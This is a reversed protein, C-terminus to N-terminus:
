KSKTKYTKLTEKDSEEIFEPLIELIENLERQSMELNEAMVQSDNTNSKTRGSKFWPVKRYSTKPVILKLFDIYEQPELVKHYTNTTHNILQTMAPSHFSVGKNIVWSSCDDGPYLDNDEKKFLINTILKFNDTM